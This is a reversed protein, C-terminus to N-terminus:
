GRRSRMKYLLIVELILFMSFFVLFAVLFWVMNIGDLRYFAFGALATVALKGLFSFYSYAMMGMRSTKHQLRSLVALSAAFFVYVLLGGALIGLFNPRDVLFYAIVACLAIFAAGALMAKKGAADLFM